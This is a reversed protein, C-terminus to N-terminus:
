TVVRRLSVRVHIRSKELDIIRRVLGTRSLILTYSVFSPEDQTM